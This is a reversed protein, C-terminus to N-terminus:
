HQSTHLREPHVQLAESHQTFGSPLALCLATFCHQINITM